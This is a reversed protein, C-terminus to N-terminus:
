CKTMKKKSIKLLGKRQDVICTKSNPVAVPIALMIMKGLKDERINAYM